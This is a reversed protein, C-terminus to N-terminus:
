HFFHSSFILFLLFFIGNFRALENFTRVYKGKGVLVSVRCFMLQFRKFVCIKSKKKKKSM